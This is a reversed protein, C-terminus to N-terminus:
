SGLAGREPGLKSNAGAAWLKWGEKTGTGCITGMAPQGGALMGTLQDTQGVQLEELGSAISGSETSGM